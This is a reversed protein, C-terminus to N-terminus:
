RPNRHLRKSAYLTPEFEPGKVFYVPLGHALPTFGGIDWARPEIPLLHPTRGQVAFDWILWNNKTTVILFNPTTQELQKLPVVPIPFVGNRGAWLNQEPSDEGKWQEIAAFDVPFVISKAIEPKSYYYLPLVLLSDSVAITSAYPLTRQVREFSRKQLLWSDAVYGERAMVWAALLVLSAIGAVRWRSFLRYGLVASAIAFGYAMPILCRPSIMGARAVAVAYGIVPYLMNTLVAVAEHRPLPDRGLLRQGTRRERAWAFAAAAILAVGVILVYEVMETYSDPVVDFTPKNWAHPAFRAIAHNILPLYLLLPVAGLAMAIWVRLELRRREVNRVLEGAAIPFFALVAFYNSSIGAALALALLAASGYPHRSEVTWRWALLSLMAFGLMFPYSRSEYSYDFAATAMFFLIGAAAYVVPVRKRLFMWLCVLGMYSALIAPLRVALSSDGFLRMSWMEAVHSLPPNPDVGMALAHWIARVSNLKAIYFTIFEDFWLLRVSAQVFTILFYFCTLATFVAAPHQEFTEAARGFRSTEVPIPDVVVPLELAAM